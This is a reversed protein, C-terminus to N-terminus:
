FSADLLLKGHGVYAVFSPELLRMPMKHAKSNAVLNKNKKRVDRITAKDDLAFLCTISFGNVTAKKM